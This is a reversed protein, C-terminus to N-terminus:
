NHPKVKIEFLRTKKQNSPDVEVGIVVQDGKKATSTIKSNFKAVTREGDESLNEFYFEDYSVEEGEPNSFKVPVRSILECEYFVKM